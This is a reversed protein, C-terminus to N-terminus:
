IKYKEGPFLIQFRIHAKHKILIREVQLIVIFDFEASYVWLRYQVAQMCRENVWLVKIM